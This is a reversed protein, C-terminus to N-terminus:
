CSMMQFFTIIYAREQIRSVHHQIKEETVECSKKWEAEHPYVSPNDVSTPNREGSSENGSNGSSPADMVPVATSSVAPHCAPGNLDILSRKIEDRKTRHDLESSAPLDDQSVSNQPSQSEPNIELQNPVSSETASEQPIDNQAL